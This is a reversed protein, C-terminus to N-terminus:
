GPPYVTLTLSGADPVASTGADPSVGADVDPTDDGADRVTQVGCASLAVLLAVTKWRM